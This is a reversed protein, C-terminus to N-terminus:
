IMGLNPSIVVRKRCKALFQTFRPICILLVRPLQSIFYRGYLLNNCRKHQDPKYETLQRWGFSFKILEEISYKDKAAWKLCEFKLADFHYPRKGVKCYICNVLQYNNPFSCSNCYWYDPKEFIFNCNPIYCLLGFNAETKHHNYCKKKPCAMQETLKITFALDIPNISKLDIPKYNDSLVKNIQDRVQDFFIHSFISWCDHQEKAKFDTYKDTIIKWIKSVDIVSYINNRIQKQQEQQLTLLHYILSKEGYILSNSHDGIIYNRNIEFLIGPCYTGVNLAATLYCTNGLNLLGGEKKEKFNLNPFTLM